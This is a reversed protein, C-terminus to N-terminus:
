FSLETSGVFSLWHFIFTIETFPAAAFAHADKSVVCSEPKHEAQLVAGTCQSGLFSTRYILDGTFLCEKIKCVVFPM